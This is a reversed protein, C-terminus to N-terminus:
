RGYCKINLESLLNNLETVVMSVSVLRICELQELIPYCCKYNCGFCSMLNAVVRPHYFSESITKPYPVFRNYHAGPAICISPVRSAAAIHVASSDNGIVLSAGGIIRVMEVVSTKDILNVVRNPHLVSHLFVDGKEIDGKGYGLLVIRYEFPISDTIKAFNETSWSRASYSASLSLVAYKGDVLPNSEICCISLVPLNAIFNSKFLSRVFYANILLESTTFSNNEIMNTYYYDSRKKQKLSINSLDGDYGVKNSSLTLQVVRDSYHYERSFVPSIVEKWFVSRLQKIFFFRYKCSYIFKHRNFEWVEHFFTDLLAIDKVASNCILIVKKDAYNEKYARLSDQWVIFDGIADLKILLLDIKRNPRKFLFRCIYDLIKNINCFLYFRIIYLM